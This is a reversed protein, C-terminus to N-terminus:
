VVVIWIWLRSQNSELTPANSEVGVVKIKLLKSASLEFECDAPDFIDNLYAATQGPVGILTGDVEIKFQYNDANASRTVALTAFAQYAGSDLNLETSNTITPTSDFTSQTVSLDFYGNLAPAGSIPVEAIQLRRSEFSSGDRKSIYSM